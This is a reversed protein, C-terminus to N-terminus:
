LLLITLSNLYKELPRSQSLGHVRLVWRRSILKLNEVESVDKMSIFGHTSTSPLRTTM